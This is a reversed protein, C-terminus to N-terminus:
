LFIAGLMMLLLLAFADQWSLAPLEFHIESPAASAPINHVEDLSELFDAISGAPPATEVYHLTLWLRAALREPSLRIWKLPYLFLFFGAMLNDRSTTKLLISVGALMIVLRTAQLMGTYLGEYTPALDFPWDRLYEGPTNFAYIVLLFLLLWRMKRLLKLFNGAHWYLMLVISMALLIALSMPPVIYVAAALALM